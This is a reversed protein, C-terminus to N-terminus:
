YKVERVGFADAGLSSGVFVYPDQSSGRAEAYAQVVRLFADQSSKRGLVAV